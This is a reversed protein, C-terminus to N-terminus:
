MDLLTGGSLSHLYALDDYGTIIEQLKLLPSSLYKDKHYVFSFLRNWEQHPSTFVYIEKRRIDEELLRISVVGLCNNIKIVNRIADPSSEEFVTQISLRHRSLFDEFLERTGSGSERMVFDLGELEQVPLSARGAFPHRRSCALVLMDHVLPISVLDPHRIRGEVVAVDLEMDLLKKEIIRTNNVYSYLVTDPCAAKLDRIFYPLLSSGVTVTAGVRLRQLRAEQTMNEEILDFQAAVPKAYSYLRKGAETIFLKKSLREFLLVQYHSELERIAQSVSPQSLYLKEAAASMTGTEAVAIFVKLHRITM